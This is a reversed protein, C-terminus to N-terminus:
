GGSLFYLGGGGGGDDDQRGGRRGGSLWDRTNNTYRLNEPWTWQQTLQRKQRRRERFSFM